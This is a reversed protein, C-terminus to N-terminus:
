IECVYWSYISCVSCSFPSCMPMIVRMSGMSIQFMSEVGFCIFCLCSLSFSRLNSAILRRSFSNGGGGRGSGEFLKSKLLAAACFGLRDIILMILPRPMLFRLLMWLFGCLYRGGGLLTAPVRLTFPKCGGGSGISSADVVCFFCLTFPKSGGGSGNCIGFKSRGAVSGARLLIESLSANGFGAPLKLCMAALKLKCKSLGTTIM